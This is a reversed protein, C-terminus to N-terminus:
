ILHTAYENYQEQLGSMITEAGGAEGRAWEGADFRAGAMTGEYATMLDKEVDTYFGSSELTKASKSYSLDQMGSTFSQSAPLRASEIRFEQQPAYYGTQTLPSIKDMQTQVDAMYGGYTNMLSTWDAWANDLETGGTTDWADYESAHRSYWEGFDSDAKNAAALQDEDWMWAGSSWAGSGQGDYEPYPM